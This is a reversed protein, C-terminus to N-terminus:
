NVYLQYILTSVNPFNHKYIANVTTNIDFSALVKLREGFINRLAFHMGGIGSYFELASPRYSDDAMKTAMKTAM